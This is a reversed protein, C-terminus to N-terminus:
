AESLAFDLIAFPSLLPFDLSNPLELSDSDLVVSATEM